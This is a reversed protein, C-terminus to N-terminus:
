RLRRRLADALQPVVSNVWTRVRPALNRPTIGPHMWSQRNKPSESITRFTKYGAGGPMKKMGSYISTTHSDKLKGVKPTMNGLKKGPKLSRMAALVTAATAAASPLGARAESTGPAAGAYGAGGTGHRFAVRRYKHGDKSKKVGRQGDRLMTQRLDGGGWGREIMLPLTGSLVVAAVDGVDVRSLGARYEQATSPSMTQRSLSDWHLLAADAINGALAGWEARGDPRVHRYLPALNISVLTVKTM